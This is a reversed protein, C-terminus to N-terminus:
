INSKATTEFISPRHASVASQKHYIVVNVM